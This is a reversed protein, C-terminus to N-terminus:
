KEISSIKEWRKKAGLKGIASYYKKGKLKTKNGGLKGLQKAMESKNM